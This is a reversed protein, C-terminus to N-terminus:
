QRRFLNLIFQVLRQWFSLHIVEPIKMEELPKIQQDFAERLKVESLLEGNANVELLSFRGGATILNGSSTSFWKWYKKHTM